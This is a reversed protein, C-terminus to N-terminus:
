ALGTGSVLFTNSAICLIAKIGNQVLFMDQELNTSAYILTVGSGADIDRRYSGNATNADTNIITITDGASFVNPPVIIRWNADINVVKSNDSAVLTASPAPTLNQNLALDM